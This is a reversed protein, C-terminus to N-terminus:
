RVAPVAPAEAAGTTPAGREVRTVRPDAWTGDVHFEQTAARMLPERLFMQALFSGLGIAPNIVTAVLSATGANIEPVVVVKLDQTENAIDAKGEMLVAANIGKMQLNNTAAMGQEITVDGRLFDFAFGESFVDRFDLTLRRPLSQLSLVSLLKALGPDAKLFQGAEVNVRFSGALSRHDMAMPSGLWSVTGEMQGRGRRVVDKMGMRTLLQGADAMDLRFKMATRRQEGPRAQQRPGGPPVPQAGVPAWNGSASFSAEPMTLALKNLRWERVGGERAVTGPGRNIADIELRGLKRGKLEFDEVVVDLAPISGPQEELLTEVSSAASAAMNLRALRAYLRGAGTNQPQRYELYGNLERADVNARWIRGERSGGIVVDHLPRGEISLQRARLALVTPLYAMGAGVEAPAPAGGPTPTTAVAEGGAARALADGWADVDFDGLQVNAMVGEAPMAVTEGAALGVAIAGRLVQPQPTSLDRVYSVSALRGVEVSLQEQLRAGPALAERTLATEYRLPLVSDASKSLPAPLQIAMGQLNSTVQVEPTGRRVALALTYATSGSFDRAIRSIAGLEQAQRLGEATVTGQARLQVITGLEGAARTGGELRLDGGLARAQVGSLQFGKDSFQVVGRTRALQPTDPTVQVDNGALTVSGQVQSHALDALPLLLELAVDANGSASARALAQNMMGGVPSTNVVTLADTVPGAIRGTVQVRNHEFDPIRAQAQVQLRPLGQVRGRVDKVQMGNGQFVLEGAVQTLAPWHPGPQTGRPVYAYTVDRVQATVLFEGGKNEPFPFQRLDGRVRFKAGTAHGAQVAAQVYDRASQPVGLPLYRWVRTGDARSLSGSLELTGPFRPAQKRADGTRWSAQGEGSADANSFRLNAVSLSLQPGNAQWQVDATLSDVPLQPEQFVGPFDLAGQAIALKAKGGAQSLEFDISAGRVGPSGAGGESAPQSAVELRTARGRAEYKQPEALPGQWRAQVREVLGRPAYAQLATHTAAGLPLRSAIQSLAGLDLMDARLEGQALAQGEPGTWTVAVNGGPWRQGDETLFQLDQTHFEFGGALRKGGVRGSMSQLALPQLQPGLTASVGTLVVDATGGVVRGKEVDAWARLRGQGQAIDVGVDAHRRLHSLDVASFDAHLEGNWTQWRGPRTSLLPQRFVGALTFRKGWEPPPTADLRVLHRRGGNRAVFDVQSLVLPPAGRQEDTWQVWGGQIVVESQSFFWDAARGDNDSTRSFDLGAVSIRGDASRRIDLRPRDLYLQEFGLNWLSRPSVAAVVVPLTLAPRGQADLLVVDQLTFSPILGDSRASIAGIRVPVGLIRSARIELAPRLEGIRPVIFGHLAGWALALLLSVALLLWLSWKAAHALM